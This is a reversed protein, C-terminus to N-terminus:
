QQFLPYFATKMLLCNKSNKCMNTISYNLIKHAFCLSHLDSSGIYVFLFSHVMSIHVM